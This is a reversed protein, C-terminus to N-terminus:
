SVIYHVRTKQSAPLGHLRTVSVKYGYKPEYSNEFRSLMKQKSLSVKGFIEELEMIIQKVEMHSDLKLGKREFLYALTQNMIPNIRKHKFKYITLVEETTKCMETNYKGQSYQSPAERIIKKAILQEETLNTFNELNLNKNREIACRYSRVLISCAGIKPLQDIADM